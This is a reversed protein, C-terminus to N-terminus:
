IKILDPEARSIYTELTMQDVLSSCSGDKTIYLEAAYQAIRIAQELRVDKLLYAALAAIFADISNTTDINIIHIGPFHLQKEKTKLYVGEHNLTIIVTKIGLRYLYDAQQTYDTDDPCLNAAQQQDVALIDIYPILEPPLYKLSASSFINHLGHSRSLRFAEFLAAQPIDASILAFDADKFLHTQKKLDGTQLKGNAGPLVAIANKKNQSVYIYAKGTPTETDCYVGSTIIHAKQLSDYVFHGSSDKGVKGLLSVNCGLKACGIAQIAGAGGLSRSSNSIYVTKGAEPLTDANLLHNINISGIALIKQNRATIPIDLTHPPSMRYPPSFSEPAISENKEINKIIAEAAYSGLGEYPIELTSIAPYSHVPQLDEQLSCLSIDKPIHYHLNETQKYFDLAASYSNSIVASYGNHLIDHFYNADSFYFCLKNPLPIHRDYLCKQVGELMLQSSILEKELLCAIRKHGYSIIKEAIVYGMKRFNINCASPVHPTNVYCVPINCESLYHGSQLSNIGVPEWIVGDVKSRCLATIHKLENEYSNASDFLLISYGHTQATQLIGNILHDHYHNSSRLVGLIFTKASSAAKINAYPVYNYKKVIALVRSRTEPHISDDKENIIKSVTSASVGALQAIEKITM